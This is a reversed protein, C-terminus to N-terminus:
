SIKKAYQNSSALEVGLLKDYHKEQNPIFRGFKIIINPFQTLYEVQKKIEEETYGTYIVIDDSSYERFQAIFNKLDEWSDLPELGGCVVSKSIPNNCYYKIITKIDVKINPEKSLSSNQCIINGNEKDCKFSCNPFILFMAPKCYNVFDEAILNKIIM